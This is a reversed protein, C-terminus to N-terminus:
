KLFLKYFLCLTKCESILFLLNCFWANDCLGWYTKKKYGFGFYGICVLVRNNRPKITRIQLFLLMSCLFQYESTAFNVHDFILNFRLNQFTQDIGFSTKLTIFESQLSYVYIRVVSRFFKNNNLWNTSIM